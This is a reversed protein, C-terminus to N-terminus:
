LIVHMIANALKWKGPVCTDMVLLSLYYNYGLETPNLQFISELFGLAFIKIDALDWHISNYGARDVPIM